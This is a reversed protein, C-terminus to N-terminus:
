FTVKPMFFQFKTPSIAMYFHYKLINMNEENEKKKKLLYYKPHLSYFNIGLSPNRM